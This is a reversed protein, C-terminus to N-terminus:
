NNNTVNTAGDAVNLQGSTLLLLDVSGTGSSTPGLIRNQAVTEIKATVADDSINSTGVSTLYTLLQM